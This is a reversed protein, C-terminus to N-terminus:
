ARQLYDQLQVLVYSMAGAFLFLSLWILKLFVRQLAWGQWRCIGWIIILFQYSAPYLFLAAMGITYGQSVEGAQIASAGMIWPILLLAAGIAFVLPIGHAILARRM